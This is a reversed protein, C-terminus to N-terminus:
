AAARLRAARQPDTKTIQMQETVNWTAKRFPNKGLGDAAGGPGGGAAGSGSNAEFLHPAAGVLSETWEGLSLPSGDKGVRVTTGDAEVAQPVGNVLRFTNRARATLDPIASARLGRKTAETVAAQDIQIAALRQTLSDREMTLTNLGRELEARAAKVRADIVKETEGAKLLAQEELRLKEAAMKRVADPDIGDFRQLLDTVQKQLAINNTRFEAVRKDEVPPPPEYDLVFAGNREVYAARVDAPIETVSAFKERLPM